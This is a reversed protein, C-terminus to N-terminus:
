KVTVVYDLSVVTEEDIVLYPKSDIFWVETVVGEVSEGYPGIAEVERGVLSTAQLSQMTQMNENLEITQSLTNLQAMQNIFDRDALPDLPDQNALETILLMLFDTEDLESNGSVLSYSGSTQVPSTMVSSASLMPDVM